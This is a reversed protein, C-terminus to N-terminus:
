LSIKFVRLFFSLINHVYSDLFCKHFLSWQDLDPDAEVVEHFGIECLRHFILIRWFLVLENGVHVKECGFIWFGIFTVGYQSPGEATSELLLELIIQQHHSNLLRVRDDNFSHLIPYIHSNSTISTGLEFLSHFITLLPLAVRIADDEHEEEDM